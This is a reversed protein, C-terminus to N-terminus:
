FGLAKLETETLGLAQLKGIAAEKDQKKKENIAEIAAIEDSIKAQAAEIEAIEEATAERDVGNDNIIM